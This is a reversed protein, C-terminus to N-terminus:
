SVRIIIYESSSRTIPETGVPPKLPDCGGDIRPCVVASYVYYTGTDFEHSGAECPHPLNDNQISCKEKGSIVYKKCANDNSTCVAIGGYLTYMHTGGNTINTEFSVQQNARCTYSGDGARPSCVNSTITDDSVILGRADFGNFTTNTNPNLNIMPTNLLNKLIFVIAILVGLLFVALIAKGIESQQGKNKM